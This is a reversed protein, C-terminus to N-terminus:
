RWKDWKNVKTVPGTIQDIGSSDYALFVPGASVRARRIVTLEETSYEWGVPRVIAVPITQSAYWLSRTLLSAVTEPHGAMAKETGRVANDFDRARLPKSKGIMTKRWSKIVEKYDGDDLSSTAMIVEVVQWWEDPVLTV